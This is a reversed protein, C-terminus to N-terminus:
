ARGERMGEDTSLSTVLSNIPQNGPGILGLLWGFEEAWETNMTSPIQRKPTKQAQRTHENHKASQNDPQLSCLTHLVRELFPVDVSCWHSQCHMGVVQLHASHSTENMSNPGQSHSHPTIHGELPVEGESNITHKGQYNQFLQSHRTSVTPAHRLCTNIWSPPVQTSIYPIPLCIALAYWHCAYGSGSPPSM